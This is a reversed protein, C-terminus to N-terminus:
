EGVGFMRTAVGNSSCRAHAVLIVVRWGTTSCGGAEPWTASRGEDQRGECGAAAGEAGGRWGGRRRWSPGRGRKREEASCEDGATNRSTRLGDPRRAAATRAAIPAWLRVAIDGRLPSLGDMRCHSDVRHRRKSRCLACGSRHAAASLMAAAARLQLRATTMTVASVSCQAACCGVLTGCSRCLLAHARSRMLQLRVRAGRRRETWRLRLASLCSSSM